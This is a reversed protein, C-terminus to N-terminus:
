IWKKTRFDVLQGAILIILFALFIGFSWFNDAGPFGGVNIGILETLSGLPLFIPSVASLVYVRVNQSKPERMLVMAPGAWVTVFVQIGWRFM